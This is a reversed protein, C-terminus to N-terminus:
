TRLTNTEKGSVKHLGVIDVVLGGLRTYVGYVHLTMVFKDKTFLVFISLQVDLGGQFDGYDYLYDVGNGGRGAGNLFGLTLTMISFVSVRKFIIVLGGKFSYFDVYINGGRGYTAEGGVGQPGVFGLARGIKSRTALYTTTNGYVGGNTYGIKTAFHYFYVEGLVFVIKDRTVM